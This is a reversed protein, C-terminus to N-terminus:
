GTRHADYAECAAVLGEITAAGESIKQLGLSEVTKEAVYYDATAHALTWGEPLQAAAASFEEGSLSPNPYPNDPDPEGDSPAGPTGASAEAAVIAEAVAEKNPLSAAGDIGAETAMDNLEDRSHEEVLADVDTM